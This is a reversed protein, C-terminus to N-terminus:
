DETTKILQEALDPGNETLRKRYLNDDTPIDTNPENLTSVRRASQNEMASEVERDIEEETMRRTM